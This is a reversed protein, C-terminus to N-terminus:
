SRALYVAEAIVLDLEDDIDVSEEPSMRFLLPHEGIRSRRQLITERDFIYLCSNEELLPDLDQTRVIGLPDHNVPRAATTYFRKHVPTVSFLSDHAPRAAFYASAAVDVARSTLLPNTSHTQLFHAGDLQTVTNRVIEHASAMDDALAAPRSLLRVAPFQHAVDEWLEDSDTDIVIEGVSEAQTLTEIIHHYLPKGALLRTNKGPVRKSDRRMPVIATLLDPTM